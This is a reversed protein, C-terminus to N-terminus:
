SLPLIIRLMEGNSSFQNTRETEDLTKLVISWNQSHILCVCRVSNIMPFYRDCLILWTNNSHMTTYKGCLTINEVQFAVHPSYSHLIGHQKSLIQTFTAVSLGAQICSWKVAATARLSFYPRKELDVIV